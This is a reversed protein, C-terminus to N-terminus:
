AQKGKQSSLAQSRTLIQIVLQEAKQAFSGLGKSIRGIKFFNTNYEMMAYELKMLMEGDPIHNNIVSMNSLSVEGGEPGIVQIYKMLELMLKENQDYDGIKPAATLPYQTIMKRAATAPIRSIIFEKEEGDISKLTINKPKILSM